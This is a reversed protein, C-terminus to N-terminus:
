SKAYNTQLDGMFIMLEDKSASKRDDMSPVYGYLHKFYGYSMGVSKNNEDLIDSHGIRQNESDTLKYFNDLTPFFTEPPFIGLKIARHTYDLVDLYSSNIFREDFYGLNGVVGSRIFLAETNLKTNVCLSQGKEADDLVTSGEGYGTLFWTGFAEAIKITKEIFNPDTVVVNSNFIFLYKLGLCRFHAIAHNRLTAMSVQHSIKKDYIFTPDPTTRNTIIYSSAQIGALSNVCKELSENDYIDLIAIGTDITSPQEM